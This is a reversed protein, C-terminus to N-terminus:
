IRSATSKNMSSSLVYNPKKTPAQGPLYPIQVNVGLNVMGLKSLTQYSPLFEHLGNTAQQLANSLSIISNRTQNLTNVTSNDRIGVLQMLGKGISSIISQDKNLVQITDHLMAGMHQGLALGGTGGALTGLGPVISGLGAGLGAGIGGGIAQYALRKGTKQLGESKNFKDLLYNSIGTFMGVEPKFKQGLNIMAIDKKTKTKELQSKPNQMLATATRRTENNKQADKLGKRMKDEEASRKKILATLMEMATLGGIEEVINAQELVSLKKKKMGKSLDLLLLEQNFYNKGTKDQGAYKSVDQGIFDRIDYAQELRNGKKGKKKGVKFNQTEMMGSLSSYLRQQIKRESTGPTSGIMGKNSAIMANSLYEEFSIGKEGAGTGSYKTYFILDKTDLASYNVAASLMDSAKKIAQKDKTIPTGKKRAEPTQINERQQHLTMNLIKQAEEPTTGLSRGLMTSEEIMFKLMDGQLGTKALNIGISQTDLINTGWKQASDKVAKDMDKLQNPKLEGRVQLENLRKEYELMIDISGMVIDQTKQGINQATNTVVQGLQERDIWQRGQQKPIDIIRNPNNPDIMKGKRGLIDNMRTDFSSGRQNAGFNLKRDYAGARNGAIIDRREQGRLNKDEQKQKYENTKQIKAKEKNAIEDFMREYMSTKAKIISQEDKLKRDNFQKNIALKDKERQTEQKKETARYEKDYQKNLKEKEKKRQKTENTISKERNKRETELAKEIEKERNKLEKKLENKREQNEKKLESHKEKQLKTGKETAKNTEKQAKDTEKQTKLIDKATNSYKKLAAQDVLKFGLETVLKKVVESM